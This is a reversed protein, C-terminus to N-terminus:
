FLTSAPLLTTHVPSGPSSLLWGSDRLAAQVSYAWALSQYVHTQEM